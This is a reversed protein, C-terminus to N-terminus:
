QSTKRGAWRKKALILDEVSISKCKHGFLEVMKTHGSVREFDGVGTVQGILDVVGLDTELYFNSIKSIDQPEELFSIKQTTMRHKPHFYKLILRLKEINKPTFLLCLDLDQTV